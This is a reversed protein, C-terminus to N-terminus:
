ERFHVLEELLKFSGALHHLGYHSGVHAVHHLACHTAAALGSELVRFGIGSGLDMSKSTRLGTELDLFPFSVVAVTM